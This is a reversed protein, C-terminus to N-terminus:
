HAKPKAIGSEAPYSVWVLTTGNAFDQYTFAGADAVTMETEPGKAPTRWLGLELGVTAVTLLATVTLAPALWRRLVRAWWRSPQTASASLERRRIERQIKSWYFERSEPLKLGADFHGFAQRTNRLEASLAAAAADNALWAAVRRREPEPLEGDLYAQLKLQQEENMLSDNTQGMGDTPMM